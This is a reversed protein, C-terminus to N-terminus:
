EFLACLNIQLNDYTAYIQFSAIRIKSFRAKRVHVVGWRVNLSIKLNIPRNSILISRFSLIEVSSLRVSLRRSRCCYTTEEFFLFFTSFVITEYNM